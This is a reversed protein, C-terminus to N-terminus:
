SKDSPLRSELSAISQGPVEDTEKDNLIGLSWKVPRRKNSEGGAEPDDSGSGQENKLEGDRKEAPGFPKWRVM